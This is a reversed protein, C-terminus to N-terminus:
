DKQEDRKMFKKMCDNVYFLMEESSAKRCFKYTPRYQYMFIRLSDDKLRTLKSVYAYSFKSDIYDEKDDKELKKRFDRKEKEGPSFLRGLNLKVGVGDSLQPHKDVITRKYAYEDKYYEHRALSDKSYNAQGNVTVSSLTTSHPNLSVDYINNLMFYDTKVTDQYYSTSSFILTDGEKAEIKFNGGLDSVNSKQSSINRVTVYPIVEDGKANYVKGKVSQQCFSLSPFFIITLLILLLIRKPMGSILSRM